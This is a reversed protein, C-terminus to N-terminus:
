MEFIVVQKNIICFNTGWPYSNLDYFIYLALNYFMYMCFKENQEKCKRRIEMWRPKLIRTAIM